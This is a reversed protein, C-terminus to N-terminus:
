KLLHYRRWPLLELQRFNEYNSSFSTRRQLVRRRGTLAGARSASTGVITELDDRDSGYIATELVNEVKRCSENFLSKSVARNSGRVLLSLHVDPFVPYYGISVDEPLNIDKIM